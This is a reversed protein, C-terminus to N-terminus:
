QLESIPMANLRDLDQQMDVGPPLQVSAEAIAIKEGNELVRLQELSELNELVGPEWQVFNQLLKVKYAYIGLHRYANKPVELQPTVTNTNAQQQDNNQAMALAHNRDCPIPARSFYLANQLNDTVVKVVSPRMFEQYDLIPEYLTAMVCEPKHLLLDKVQQLLVPPVLPEDGQMNVVIDEADWGKIKAVESLRDTGSAHSADTMVVDYGAERCVEAIRDDDTAICLDDAFTAQSAKQAVWLIMPKGHIHLLPKGPLRTSKFRAPIVIHVKPESAKIDTSNM